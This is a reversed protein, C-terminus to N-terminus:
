GWKPGVVAAGGGVVPKSLPGSFENIFKKNIIENISKYVLKSM